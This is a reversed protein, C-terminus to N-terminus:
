IYSQFNRAIQAPTLRYLKQLKRIARSQAIIYARRPDREFRRLKRRRRWERAWYANTHDAM